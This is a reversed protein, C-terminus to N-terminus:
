TEENTKVEETELDVTVILGSFYIELTKADAPVNYLKTCGLGYNGGQKYGGGSLPIKEGEADFVTANASSSWVISRAFPNRKTRYVVDLRGSEYYYIDELMLTDDYVQYEQDLEIHHIKAMGGAPEYEDRLNSITGCVLNGAPALTAGILGIALIRTVLWIRGLIVGHEKNLATGIEEAEGMYEVTMHAAVDADMGEAQLEECLDEMHEALEQLIAKHDHKFKVFSLVDEIYADWRAKEM